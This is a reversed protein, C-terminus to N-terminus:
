KNRRFIASIAMGVIILLILPLVLPLNGLESGAEAPWVPLTTGGASSFVIMLTM